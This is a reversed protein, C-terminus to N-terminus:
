ITELPFTLRQCVRESELVTELGANEGYLLRLRKRINELGVGCRSGESTERWHGPHDVEVAYHGPEGLRARIVLDFDGQHQMFGHRIANEVLPQLMFAPIYQTRLAPDVDVEIRLSDGYRTKEIELYLMVNNLASELPNKEGASIDLTSRFFTSLRTIMQRAKLADEQVVACISNLSNYLFHPNIQYRLAKLEATHERLRSELLDNEQRLSYVAHSRNESILSSMGLATAALVWSFAQVYWLIEPTRDLPLSAANLILSVYLSGMIILLFWCIQAFTYRVAFFMMVPFVAFAFNLRGQFVNNFAPLCVAVLILGGMFFSKTLQNNFEKWGPFSLILPAVLLVGCANAPVNSVIFAGYAALPVNMRTVLVAAFPIAVLFGMLISTAYLVVLSQIKFPREFGHAYRTLIWAGALAELVNLSAGAFSILVPQGILFIAALANLWILPAYRWGWKTVLALNFGSAPWFFYAANANLGDPWLGMGLLFPFLTLGCSGVVFCLPRRFNKPPPSSM